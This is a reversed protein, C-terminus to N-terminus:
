AAEHIRPPQTKLVPVPAAARAEVLEGAATLVLGVFGTAATLILWLWSGARLGTWIWLVWIGDLGFMLGGLTKLTLALEEYSGSDREVGNLESKSAM